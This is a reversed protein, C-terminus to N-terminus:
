FSPLVILHDWRLMEQGINIFTLRDSLGSLMEKDLNVGQVEAESIKGTNIWDVLQMLGEKHPQCSICIKLTLSSLTDEESEFCRVYLIM